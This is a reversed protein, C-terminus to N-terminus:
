VCFCFSIARLVSPNNGGTSGGNASVCYYVSSSSYASRFWVSAVAGEGNSLYKNFGSGTVGWYYSYQVGEGELASGRTGRHEIQSLLFLRDVTTGLSASSGGGKSTKKIVPKIVSQLNDPLQDFIIPLDNNRFSSDAWGGVNTDTSNMAYEAAMCDKMGFTIGAKGSEEALDDYDFGLIVFTLTEGTSLTVDKEDGVNFAFSALGERSIFDINEWSLASLEMGRTIVFPEEPDDTPQETAPPMDPSETPTETTGPTETTDPVDTVGPKDTAAPKYWDILGEFSCGSVAVTLAVVLAICVVAIIGSKKKRYAVM